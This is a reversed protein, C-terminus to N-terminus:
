QQNLHAGDEGARPAARVQSICVVGVALRVVEENPDRPPEERRFIVGGSIKM